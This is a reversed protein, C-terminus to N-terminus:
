TVSGALARAVGRHLPRRSATSRWYELGELAVDVGVEDDVGAQLKGGGEAVRVCSVGIAEVELSEVPEM